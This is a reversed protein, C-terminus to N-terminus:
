RLPDEGFKNTGETGKIFLLEIMPWLSIIPIICLWLFHGSRGRDHARKINMMISIYFMFLYGLMLLIFGLGMEIPQGQQQHFLGSAVIAWFYLMFVATNVLSMLWYRKRNLRGNSSFFMFKIHALEFLPTKNTFNDM